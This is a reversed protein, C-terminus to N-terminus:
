DLELYDNATDSYASFYTMELGQGQNTTAPGTIAYNNHNEDHQAGIILWQVLPWGTSTFDLLCKGVKGAALADYVEQWTMNLMGTESDYIVTFFDSGAGGPAAPAWEGEVVTLVDGDDDGTVSPLEAPLAAKAWEGEVVTLVDGNDTSSVAPLETASKIKQVTDLKAIANLIVTIDDVAALDTIDGGLSAYIWKLAEQINKDM